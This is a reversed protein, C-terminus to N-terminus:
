GGGGGGGVGEGWEVFIPNSKKRCITKQSSFKFSIGFGIKQSIYSINVKYLTLTNTIEFFFFIIIIIIVRLVGPLNKMLRCKPISKKNKGPFLILCKMCITELPSLKCSM